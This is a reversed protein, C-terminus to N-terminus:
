FDLSRLLTFRVTSRLAYTRLQTFAYSRLLTFDSSEFTQFVLFLKAYPDLGEAGSLFGFHRLAYPM